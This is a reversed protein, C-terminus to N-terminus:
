ENTMISCASASKNLKALRKIACTASNKAILDLIAEIVTLRHEPYASDLSDMFIERSEVPNHVMQQWSPPPSRFLVMGLTTLTGKAKTDLGQAFERVTHAWYSVGKRRQFKDGEVRFISLTLCGGINLEGTIIFTTLHFIGACHSTITVDSM